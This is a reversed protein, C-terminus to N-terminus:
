CGYLIQAPTLNKVSPRGSYNVGDSASLEGIKHFLKIFEPHYNLGTTEFFEKLKPSCFESYAENAYQMYKKADKSNIDPIDSDNKFMEDYKSIDDQLKQKADKEYFAKQKQSMELAIEMLVEVSEQSLKLKQAVPKFKKVLEDDIDFDKTKFKTFDYKIEEEM